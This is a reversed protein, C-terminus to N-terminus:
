TSQEYQAFMTRHEQAITKLPRSKQTHNARPHIREVAVALSPARQSLYLVSSLQSPRPQQVAAVLSMTIAFRLSRACLSDYLDQIEQAYFVSAITFRHVLLRPDIRGVHKLYRTIAM